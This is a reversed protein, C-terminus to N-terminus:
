RMLRAEAWDAHDSSLDGADGVQLELTKANSVDVDVWAAPTDRTM